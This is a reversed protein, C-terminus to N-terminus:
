AVAVEHNPERIWPPIEGHRLLRFAAVLRRWLSPRRPVHELTRLIAAYDIAWESPEVNGDESEKICAELTLTICRWLYPRALYLAVSDEGPEGKTRPAPFVQAVHEEVRYGDLVDIAAKRTLPDESRLDEALRYGVLYASRLAMVHRMERGRELDIPPGNM